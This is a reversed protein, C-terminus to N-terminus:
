EEQPCRNGQSRREEPISDTELERDWGDLGIRWKTRNEKFNRLRATEAEYSSKRRTETENRWWLTWKQGQNENKNRANRGTKQNTVGSFADM